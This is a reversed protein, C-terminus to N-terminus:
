KLGRATKIMSTCIGRLLDVEEHSPRARTIFARLRPMLRKPHAPDLFRTEILAQELHSLLGDLARHDAAPKPTVQSLPDAVPLREGDQALWALRLEYAALQLAQAVNLSSFAPDAPIRASLHCQLIEANGLGSRETGLVVAVRAAPGQEVLHAILQGAAERLPVNPPGLEVARPTMALSFSVDALAEALSGVCQAADLVADAGSARARAEPSQLVEADRPSVLWLESLGMNLLARAAAGVNGAHSPEVMVFRIQALM